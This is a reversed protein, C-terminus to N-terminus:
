WSEHELVVAFAEFGCWHFLYFPATHAAIFGDCPM